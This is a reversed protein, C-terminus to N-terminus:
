DDDEDAVSNAIYTGPAGNPNILVTPDECDSTTLALTERFRADGDPVSLPQLTSVGAVTTGCYLTATVNPIPNSTVGAPNDAAPIQLGELRVDIRGSERVRVEGRAVIWDRGGPAVGLIPLGGNKPSTSGILDAKIITHGGGDAFAATPNIAVVALAVAGILALRSKVHM